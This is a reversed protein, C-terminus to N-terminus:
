SRALESVIQTALQQVALRISTEVFDNHEDLWVTVGTVVVGQSEAWTAVTL